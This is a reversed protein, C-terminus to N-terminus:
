KMRRPDTKLRVHTVVKKVYSTTSAIYTVRDLEQQDQAIGMLYVTQNVTLVSYNVSHIGKTLVLRTRIQTSIWVDQTYNWLGSQDNIQIENIVERVGTVTWALRVAEVQTEPKDVNGTLLVRGEIVKIEVNVFLDKSNPAEAYTRKINIFISADDVAEGIPREQAALRAGEAGAGIILPACATSALTLMLLSLITFHIKM